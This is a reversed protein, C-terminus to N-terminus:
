MMLSWFELFPFVGVYVDNFSDMVDFSFCININENWVVGAFVDGEVFSFIYSM